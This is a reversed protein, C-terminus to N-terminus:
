VTILDIMRGTPLSGLVSVPAFPAALFTTHSLRCARRLYCGRMCRSFNVSGEGGAGLGWKGPKSLMFSYKYNLRRHGKGGANM